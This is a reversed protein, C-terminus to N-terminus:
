VRLELQDCIFALRDTLAEIRTDLPLAPAHGRSEQYDLVIPRKSSTARQLRATMKRAHCPNCSDDADGSVIMVGPYPTGDQIRHYPSYSLLAAFDEPDDATGFEEKWKYADDFLHYRLMDLIPVMCLVARFLDPRQTLAAAVLLGANSGGFIGLQDASTRKADILWEAASLFDDYAKQRHHRKASDHWNSGFESGGRISPVAFLCGHELLCAVFVSFQPTMRLGYGGYATMVAPHCGARVIDRRGVLSLPIETGDKSRFSFQSHIYREPDFAHERKAWVEQQGTRPSLHHISAPETFSETEFFLEDSPNAGGLLRITHHKAIEVEGTKMGKLDFRDLRSEIGTAYQVFLSDGAAMWANIRDLREPILEQWKPEEDTRLILEVIRLNPADRDTLALIRNGTLLPGFFFDVGKLLCVPSAPLDLSQLYFDTRLKELFTYGLFGLRKHDSIMCLRLKNDDGISFVEQDEEMPHGLLHFYAARHFPPKPPLPEHVYYFGNGDAAFAFGRLFGRPLSDPLRRREQIDFLEFSGSREGGQKVEYLLLRNDPSVRILKVSTFPGTQREEPDILLEDKGNEGIRVYIGAQQQNASRKRFYCCDGVRVPSDCSDVSLFESVRRRLRDRNEISDLYLRAHRRQAAIWRHTSPSNRDELWRYPDTVSVGHLVETVPEIPSPPLADILRRM